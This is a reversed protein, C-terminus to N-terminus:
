GVQKVPFVQDHSCKKEFRAVKPFGFNVIRCLPGCHDAHTDFFKHMDEKGHYM